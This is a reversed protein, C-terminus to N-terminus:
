LLDIFKFFADELDNVIIGGIESVPYTNDIGTLTLSYSAGADIGFNGYPFPNYLAPQTTITTM